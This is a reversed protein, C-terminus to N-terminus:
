RGGDVWISEDSKEKDNKRPIATNGDGVYRSDERKRKAAILNSMFKEDSVYNDPNSKNKGISSRKKSVAVLIYVVFAVVLALIVMSLYPEPILDHWDPEYHFLVFCREMFMIKDWAIWHDVTLGHFM